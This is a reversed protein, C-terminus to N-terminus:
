SYLSRRRRILITSRSAFTLKWVQFCYFTLSRSSHRERVFPKRLRSFCYETDPQKVTRLIALANFRRKLSHPGLIRFFTDSGIMAGGGNHRRSTRLARPFQNHPQTLELPMAETVIVDLHEVFSLVAELIFLRDRPFDEAIVVATLNYQDLARAADQAERFSNILPVFQMGCVVFPRTIEFGYIGCVFPM